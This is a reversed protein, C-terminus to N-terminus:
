FIDKFVYGRKITKKDLAVNTVIKIENPNKKQIKKLPLVHM